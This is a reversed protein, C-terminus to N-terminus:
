CGFVRKAGRYFIFLLFCVLTTIVCSISFDPLNTFNGHDLNLKSMVIFEIFSPILSAVTMCGTIKAMAMTENGKSEKGTSVTVVNLFHLYVMTDLIVGAISIMYFVVIDDAYETFLQVSLGVRAIGIGILTNFVIFAYSSASVHELPKVFSCLLRIFVLSTKIEVMLSPRTQLPGIMYYFIATAATPQILYLFLVQMLGNKNDHEKKIRSIESQYNVDVINSDAVKNTRKSRTNLNFDEMDDNEDDQQKRDELKIKIEVDDGENSDKNIDIMETAILDIKDYRVSPCASLLYSFAFFGLLIFGNAAFVDGVKDEQYIFGSLLRGSFQGFIGSRLASYSVDKMDFPLSKESLYGNLITNIIAPAFEGLVLLFLVQSKDLSEMNLGLNIWLISMLIAIFSIQKLKNCRYQLKDSVYAFPITLLIWSINIAVLCLPIQNVPFVKLWLQEPIDTFDQVVGQLFFLINIKTRENWAICM